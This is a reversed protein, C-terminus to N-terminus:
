LPGKSDGEVLELTGVSPDYIEGSCGTLSVPCLWLLMAALLCMVARATRKISMPSRMPIEKEHRNRGTYWGFIAEMRVFRSCKICACFFETHPQM